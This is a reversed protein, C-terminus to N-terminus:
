GTVIQGMRALAQVPDNMQGGQSSPTGILPTANEIPAIAEKAGLAKGHQILHRILSKHDKAALSLFIQKEVNPVLKETGDPQPQVQFTSGIWKDTDWMVSLTDDADPIDYNFADPGEGLVIKKQQLVEKALPNSLIEERFATMAQQAEQQEQLLAAEPNREPAPPLLFDQQKAVLAQRQKNAELELLFKGDEVESESFLDPDLKFPLAVKIKYLKDLKDASLEPYEQQLHHRMVQEADMNAYDTTLAQLYKTVDGKNKWQHLFGLMKDDFGLEKLVETDPQQKLVKKWDVPEPAKAPQVPPPAPSPAPTTAVPPAAPTPQATTEVPVSEPATAPPAPVGQTHIAPIDAPMDIETKIGSRAMIAAIDVPPAAPAEAFAADYQKWFFRM